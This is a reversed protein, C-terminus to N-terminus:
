DENLIQEASLVGTVRIHSCKTVKYKFTEGNHLGEVGKSAVKEAALIAQKPTEAKIILRYNNPKYVNGAAGIVNIRLRVDYFRRTKSM